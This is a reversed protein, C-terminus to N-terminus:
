DGQSADSALGEAKKRVWRPEKAAVRDVDARSAEILMEKAMRLGEPDKEYAVVYVAALLAADQVPYSDAYSGLRAEMEQGPERGEKAMAARKAMLTAGEPGLLGVAADGSLDATSDDDDGAIQRFLRVVGVPDKRIRDRDKDDLVDHDTSAGSRALRFKGKSNFQIRDRNKDVWSVFDSLAKENQEPTANKYVPIYMGMMEGARKLSAVRLEFNSTRKSVAVFALVSERSPYWHLVDVLSFTQAPSHLDDKALYGLLIPFYEPKPKEERDYILDSYIGFAGTREEITGARISQDVAELLLDRPAKKIVLSEEYFGHMGRRLEEPAAERAEEMQVAKAFRAKLDQIAEERSGSFAAPCLLLLLLFSLIARQAIKM